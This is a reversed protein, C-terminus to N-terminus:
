LTEGKERLDSVEQGLQEIQRALTVYKEKVVYLEQSIDCLLLLQNEQRAKQIEFAKWM